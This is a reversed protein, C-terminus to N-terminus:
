FRVLKCWSVLQDLARSIENLKNMDVTCIKGPSYMKKVNELGKIYRFISFFDCM